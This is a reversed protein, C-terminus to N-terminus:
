KFSLFVLGYTHYSSLLYSCWAMPITVVQFIPVGPWLYPLWKFSLFVLGYTHYRVQPTRKAQEGNHRVVEDPQVVNGIRLLMEISYGVYNLYLAVADFLCLVTEFPSIDPSLPKAAYYLHDTIIVINVRQQRRHQVHRAPHRSSHLLYQTLM